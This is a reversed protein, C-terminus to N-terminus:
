LESQEEARKKQMLDETFVFNRIATESKALLGTFQCCYSLTDPLHTPRIAVIRANVPVPTKGAAFFFSFISNKELKKQSIFMLGGASINKIIIPEPKVSDEFAADVPLSVNVRLEERLRPTDKTIAELTYYTRETTEVYFDSFTGAKTCFYSIFDHEGGDPMLYFHDPIRLDPKDPFILTISGPTPQIFRAKIIFTSDLDYLTCHEANLLPNM